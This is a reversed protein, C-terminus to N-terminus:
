STPDAPKEAKGEEIIQDLLAFQGQVESIRKTLREREMRYNSDLNVLDINVQNFEAQLEKKKLEYDMRNRRITSNDGDAM